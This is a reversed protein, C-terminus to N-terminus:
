GFLAGALTLQAILVGNHRVAPGVLRLDFAGDFLQELDFYDSNVSHIHMAFSSAMAAGVLALRRIPFFGHDGQLLAVFDNKGLANGTIGTFVKLGNVGADRYM